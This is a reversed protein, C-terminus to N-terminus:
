PKTMLFPRTKIPLNGALRRLTNIQGTHTLADSLPGNIIHWFPQERITIRALTTDDIQEFCARLKLILELIHLRQLEVETPRTEDAGFINQCIWNLLGWIHEVIEGITRCDHGPSFQYDQLTLGETAYRFRFGLGDLMRIIIGTATIKEPYEEVSEYPINM